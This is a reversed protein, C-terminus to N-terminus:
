IYKRYIKIQPSILRDYDYLLGDNNAVKLKYDVHMLLEALLIYPCAACVGNSKRINLM